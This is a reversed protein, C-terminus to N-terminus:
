ILDKPDIKHEAAIKQIDEVSWANARMRNYVTIVHCGLIPALSDMNLGKLALLSKIKHSTDPTQQTNEM